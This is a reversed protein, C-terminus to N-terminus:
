DPEVTVLVKCTTYNTEIKRVTYRGGGPYIIEGVNPIRTNSTYFKGWGHFPGNGNTPVWVVEMGRDPKIGFVVFLAIFLLLCTQFITIM